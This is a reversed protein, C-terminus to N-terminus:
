LPERVFRVRSRDAHPEREVASGVFGDDLLATMLRRARRRWETAARPSLASVDAPIEVHIAEEAARRAAASRM